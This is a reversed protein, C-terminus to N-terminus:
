ELYKRFVGAFCSDGEQLGHEQCLGHHDLRCDHGVYDLADRIAQKLDEPLEFEPEPPPQKWECLQCDMGDVYSGCETNQCYLYLGM